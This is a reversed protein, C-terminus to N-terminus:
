FSVLRARCASGSFSDGSSSGRTERRRRGSEVDAVEEDDAEDDVEDAVWAAEDEVEVDPEDEEVEVGATVGTEVDTLLALIRMAAAAFPALASFRAASFPLLGALLPALMARATSSSGGSSTMTTRRGPSLTELSLLGVDEVLSAVDGGDTAAALVDSAVFDVAAREAVEKVDGRGKRVGATPQTTCGDM